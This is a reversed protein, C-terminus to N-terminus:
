LYMSATWHVDVARKPCEFWCVGCFWCDFGHTAVPRKNEEDWTFCDQPCLEYCRKCGICKDYDIYPTKMHHNVKKEAM